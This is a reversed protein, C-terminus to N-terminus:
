SRLARSRFRHSRAAPPRSPSVVAQRRVAEYAALTAGAIEDWDLDTLLTAPDRPTTEAWAMAATLTEADLTGAYTRVWAAGATERLDALAGREPALVPREFSLALLASGSNLVDHYPLVVLDAARLYLQVDARPVFALDLRIRPDAGAAARIEAELADTAPDGAVLLRWDAGPVLRVARVLAPVNKYPRIAGVFAVVRADRPLGLRDRATARDVEDPYEGRYHGHPIVFGPRAALTPFRALAAERGSASLAIYGDVRGVFWRWMRAELRRHRPEHGALNHVTWVIRVREGRLRALSVRLIMAKLVAVGLWRATFSYEPWHLHVVDHRARLVRRPTVEEVVAGRRRLASYLLFNYPNLRRNFFAPLAM